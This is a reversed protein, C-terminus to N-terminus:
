FIEHSALLKGANKGECFILDLISLGPLFGNRDEFVQPYYFSVEEERAQKRPPSLVHRADMLEMDKVFKEYRDTFAVNWSINLWRSILEFAKLNWDFLYEYKNFYMVKLEDEYFEFWPARKYASSLTRWHRIQWNDRDCIKLDKVATRGRRSRILPISLLLRGNPAAIYYRNTCSGKVFHEYQEFILTDYRYLTLYYTISAFSQLDTLLIKDKRYSSM